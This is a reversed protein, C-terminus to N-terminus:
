SRACRLPQLQANAQPLLDLGALLLLLIVDLMDIGHGQIPEALPGHHNARNVKSCLASPARCSSGLSVSLLWHSKVPDESIQGKGKADQDPMM